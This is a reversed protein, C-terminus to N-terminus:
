GAGAEWGVIGSTEVDCGIGSIEGFEGGGGQAVNFQGGGVHV